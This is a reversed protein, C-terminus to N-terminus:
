TRHTCFPYLIRQRSSCCAGRSALPASWRACRPPTNPQDTEERSGSWLCGRVGASPRPFPVRVDSVPLRASKLADQAADFVITKILVIRNPTLARCREVLAPVFTALPSGDMPSEKLDILFVGRDRLEELQERKRERTPERGLLVRCVYRFLSDHARVDTFYFYRDLSNPPAEAVLLLDVKAPKYRAAAERWRWLSEDRPGRWRKQM